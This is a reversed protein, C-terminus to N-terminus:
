AVQERFRDIAADLITRHHRDSIYCKQFCSPSLVSNEWESRKEAAWSKNNQSIRGDWPFADAEHALALGLIEAGCEAITAEVAGAIDVHYGYKCNYNSRELLEQSLKQRAAIMQDIRQREAKITEANQM